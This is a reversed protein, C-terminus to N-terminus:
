LKVAPSHGTLDATYTEQHLCQKTHHRPANVSLPHPELVPLTYHPTFIDSDAICVRLRWFITGRFIFLM